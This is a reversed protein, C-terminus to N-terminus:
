LLGVSVLEKGKFCMSRERIYSDGGQEKFPNLLGARMYVVGPWRVLSEIELEALHMGNHYRSM